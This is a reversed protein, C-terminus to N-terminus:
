AGGAPTDGAFECCPFPKSLAGANSSCCYQALLYLGSLRYRSRML